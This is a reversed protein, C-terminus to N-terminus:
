INNLRDYQEQVELVYPVEKLMLISQIFMNAYAKGLTIYLKDYKKKNNSITKKLILKDREVKTLQEKADVIIARVHEKYNDKSLNKRAIRFNEHNDQIVKRIPNRRVCGISPLQAIKGNKITESATREIGDIISEYILKEKPDDTVESLIDNMNKIVISYEIDAEDINNILGESM